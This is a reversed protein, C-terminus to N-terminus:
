NKQKQENLKYFTKRFQRELFVFAQSLTTFWVVIYDILDFEIRNLHEIFLYVSYLCLWTWIFLMFLEKFVLSTTAKYNLIRIYLDNRRNKKMYYLEIFGYATLICLVMLIFVGAIIYIRTDGEFICIIKGRIREPIQGPIYITYDFCFYLLNLLSIVFSLKRLICIWISMEYPDRSLKGIVHFGGFVSKIFDYM